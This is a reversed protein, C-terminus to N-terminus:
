LRGAISLACYLCLPSTVLRGNLHHFLTCKLWMEVEEPRSVVEAAVVELVARQLGIKDACLCSQCEKLPETLLSQAKRQDKAEVILFSQGQTDQGAHVIFRGSIIVMCSQSKCVYQQARPRHYPRAGARGARGCMQRYRTADLFQNGIYPSRFIVRKAPLNVGAALTSTATLVNIVGQRFATEILDREEVTMGANHYAVGHPVTEALIEDLEGPTRRLGDLLVSRESAVASSLVFSPPLVEPLVQCIM